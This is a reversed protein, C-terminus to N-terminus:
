KVIERSEAGKQFTQGVMQGIRTEGAKEVGYKLVDGVPKEIFDPTAAKLGEFLIDGTFGVTEGATQLANVGCAPRPFM